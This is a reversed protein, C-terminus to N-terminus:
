IDEIMLQEVTIMHFPEKLALKCSSLKNFVFDLTPRSEPSTNLCALAFKAVLVVEKLIEPIPPSLRKDLVDVLLINAQGASSSTALSTIIFDGPHKGMLVELSLVGFSYVDCKETLRMTYALEPALYGYTGAPTTWNSSNPDLVRAIGFDAVCADYESNLLINNSSIDRHILPPSCGHHMHSLASAVSKIINIRKIWDLSAAEEVNRLLNALSGRELYEYILFSHRVHLCIGYLKVINRHRLETLAHIESSFSKLDVQEGDERSHFKKVAVVQGTSLVTKYVSGFGGAGICYKDDFGETAEIIDAYVNRGDFEWICFLDDNIVEITQVETDRKKLYCVFYLGIIAFLLSLAGGMSALVIKVVKPRRNTGSNDMDSSECPRLSTINGCLGKNHEFDITLADKFNINEPVPGELENYSVDISSLRTMDKFSDPISGTLMNCSLNLYWLKSCDGIEKPIVGSFNNTSLDLTELDSLLGLEKPIKGYLNNGRLNLKVLSKLRGLERPIEGILHNMSIDLIGLKNLRELGSPIPGTINNYAITLYSLNKFLGLNNPLEGYLLNDNLYLETLSILNVLELPISGSLKNEYLYLVKLKTLNSLSSPIPGTFHNVQLELDVLSKLNGLTSLICGSLQNYSLNLITLNQLNDLSSPISGTFKNISLDLIQLSKLNGLQLPITGWLQNEYIYLITLNKLNGISSPIPGTFNNISMDLKQLSKLNGLEWPLSGSLHNEYFSLLTLKTLHGLSSPISGSLQNRSLFLGTIRTLNGISIPIPGTLFNRSIEIINVNFLNGFEMPICGTFNNLSLSLVHLSTLKGIEIPIHGSLQNGFFDLYTLQSLNAIHVPITGYISNRYLDLIALNELVSFPFTQLTGKLGISSITLNFIRGQRNCSIGYWTNCHSSYNSSSPLVWSSLNSHAGGDDLNNKWKLLAKAEEFPTITT